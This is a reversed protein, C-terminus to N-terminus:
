TWTRLLVEAAEVVAPHIAGLDEITAIKIGDTTWLGLTTWRPDHYSWWRVGAWEAEEWVARAWAQTIGRDRTVVQSPRLRRRVLARADDLDLLPPADSVDFAVLRRVAGRPHALLYDGWPMFSAFAEAVAGAPQASAYLVTYLDANDIRHRGSSPPIYLPHFPRGRRARPDVPAVRWVIV